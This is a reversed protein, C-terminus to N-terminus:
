RSSFSGLKFYKVSLWKYDTHSTQLESVDVFEDTAAQKHVRRGETKDEPDSFCTGSPQAWYVSKTMSSYEM